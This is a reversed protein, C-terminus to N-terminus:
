DVPGRKKCDQLARPILARHAELVFIRQISRRITRPRVEVGIVRHAEAHRVLIQSLVHRLLWSASDGRIRPLSAARPAAPRPRVDSPGSRPCGRADTRPPDSAIETRLPRARCVLAGEPQPIRRM